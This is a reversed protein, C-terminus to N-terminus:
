SPGARFQAALGSAIELLYLKQRPVSGDLGRFFVETALLVDHVGHVIADKRSDPSKLAVAVLSIRNTCARRASHGLCIWTLSKGNRLRNANRVPLFNQKPPRASIARYGGHDDCASLPSAYVFRTGRCESSSSLRLPVGRARIAQRGDIRAWGRPPHPTSDFRRDNAHFM